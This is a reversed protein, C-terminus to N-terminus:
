IVDPTSYMINKTDIVPGRKYEILLNRIKEQETVNKIKKALEFANHGNYVYYPNAGHKLLIELALYAPEKRPNDLTGTSKRYNILYHLTPQKGFFCTQNVKPFINGCEILELTNKWAVKPCFYSKTGAYLAYPYFKSIARFIKQSDNRNTTDVEEFSFKTNIRNTELVASHIIVGVEMSTFSHDLNKLVLEIAAASYSKIAHHLLTKALTPSEHFLKKCVESTQVAISKSSLNLSFLSYANYSTRPEIIDSVIHTFLEEPLQDLRFEDLASLKGILLALM